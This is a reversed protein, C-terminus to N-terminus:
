YTLSNWGKFVATQKNCFVKKRKWAKTNINCCRNQNNARGPLDLFAVWTHPVPSSFIHVYATFYAQGPIPHTQPISLQVLSFPAFFHASRQVSLLCVLHSSFVAYLPIAKTSSSTYFHWPHTTISVEWFHLRQRLQHALLHWQHCIVYIESTYEQSM